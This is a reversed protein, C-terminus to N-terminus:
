SGQNKISMLEALLYPYVVAMTECSLKVTRQSSSCTFYYLCNSSFTYKETNM